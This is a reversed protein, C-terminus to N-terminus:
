ENLLGIFMAHSWGLGIVWREKFDSSIQEPLLGLPTSSKLIVEMAKKYEEMNGIKKYYMAIWATAIVWPYTGSVYSDNQFRLYGNSYTRLTKNIEDVTNKVIDDNIDFMGFPVVTGLMSIDMYRDKFNRIFVNKQKDILNNLVYDKIIVKKNEYDKIKNFIVENDFDQYKKLVNYINIMADYAGYIASIAYISIGENNEWLDYTEYKYIAHKYDCNINLFKCEVYRNLFVIAKDLMDINQLLFTDDCNDFKKQYNLYHKYAGWVVIATEDIQYGWCPALTGDTFYRQEWMGEAFQTKKLFIDYYRSSYDDFNLVDLYSYIMISDRPWCYSYRGTEDREEDVELTASIGGTQENILFPIFLITRKYINILTKMYETGDDRLNLTDHEFLFRKWYNLVKKKELEVNITKLAKVNYLSDNIQDVEKKLYIFLHFFRTDGPEITGLDYSIANDSSMSIYDKDHINGSNITSDVNNMQSSTIEEDSFIGVTYNHCYQFLVDDMIVGGAMNNFSSMMKSHVLFNIKEVDESNNTFEYRRVIVDNDILAFDIQNVNLKFYTNYIDTHLINSDDEYYQNYTNNVDKHLYIINSNNVKIGVHFFDFYQRYNPTPYYLRLLEGYKTFSCTINKNGIFADNYYKKRM